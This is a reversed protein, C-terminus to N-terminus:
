PMRSTAGPYGVTNDIKTHVLLIQIARLNGTAKNILSAKARRLSHTGCDERRLGIVTIWEDVLRAYQRTSMHHAHDVRSPFAYEDITGNRREL